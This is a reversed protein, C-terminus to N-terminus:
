LSLIVLEIEIEATFRDSGSEAEQYSQCVSPAVIDYPTVLFMLAYCPM